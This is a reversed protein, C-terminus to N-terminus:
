SLYVICPCLKPVPYHHWLVNPFWQTLLSWKVTFYGKYYLIEDHFINHIIKHLSGPSEVSGQNKKKKQLCM